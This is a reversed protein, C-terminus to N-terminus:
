FRYRVGGGIQFGGVTLHETAYPISASGFAYRALVGVGWQKAVMYQIDAGLNFGFSTKSVRTLPASVTPGPETVTLSTVTDQNVFFVSPGAFLGVDLKNAVPLMYIADFHLAGESHKAGSQSSTVTRPAGFVIPDPISGTLSVDSKSSTRTYSVGALLNQGWVRYAGTIDFLGGGKVDQTTSATATEDYLPFTASSNLTHTGVEAGASVGIFGKDTWQMQASAVTPAALLALALAGATIINSPKVTLHKM